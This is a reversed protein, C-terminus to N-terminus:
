INTSPLSLSILKLVFEQM